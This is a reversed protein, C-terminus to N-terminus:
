NLCAVPLPPPCYIDSSDGLYYSPPLSVRPRDGQKFERLMLLIATPVDNGAAALFYELEDESFNQPIDCYVNRRKILNALRTLDVPPRASLPLPEVLSVKSNDIHARRMWKRVALVVAIAVSPNNCKNQPLEARFEEELPECNCLEFYYGDPDRVFLQQLTDDLSGGQSAASSHGKPVSINREYPVGMKRLKEAVEDVKQGCELSIHSVILNSGDHVAPVGKILHFEVNGLAFWAGHRDFDPRVVQRFGLVDAYFAASRGVDSVVLAVHGMKSVLSGLGRFEDFVDATTPESKLLELIEDKSFLKEDGEMLLRQEFAGLDVTVAM